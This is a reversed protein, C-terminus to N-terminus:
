IKMGIDSKLTLISRLEFLNKPLYNKVVPQMLREVPSFNDTLIIREGGIKIEENNLIKDALFPNKGSRIKKVLNNKELDNENKVGVMVINQAAKPDKGFAFVYFNPYSLEFTKFISEFLGSKEGSVASIFNIAYIGGDNLREKTKENWENTLLYWPVSVFSSYADGFILDYKTEEKNLITRADGIKTEMEYKGLEFFDKSIDVVAPDVEIVSVKTDPYNEKFKKPMTYAGGGIFLADKIENKLYAFVPYMEPYYEVIDPYEISHFDIDLILFKTNKHATTETKVVKADYYNTEKQFIINPNLKEQKTFYFLILSVVLVFVFPLITKKNKKIFIAGTLFLVLSMLWITEKSGFFSIFFFGTLFVGLIGGLSWSFSLLGYESGIKSFDIAYRKLIIPQLTGISLAPLLFLYLSLYLNLKLISDSSNVIFDTNKSLIPIFFVLVSSALFALPLSKETDTQDAIKGGLYSGLALGLLTIGIVSTWTFVSSGIIPAVIRSSTLEVVMISFGALFSSLVFLNQKNFIKVKDM